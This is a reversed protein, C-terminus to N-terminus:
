STVRSKVVLKNKVVWNTLVEVNHETRCLDTFKQIFKDWNARNIQNCGTNFRQHLFSIAHMLEIQLFQPKQEALETNIEKGCSIISIIKKKDDSLWQSTKYISDAANEIEKPDDDLCGMLKLAYQVNRYDPNEWAPNISCKGSRMEVIVFDTKDKFILDRDQFFHIIEQSKM